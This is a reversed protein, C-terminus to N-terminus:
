RGRVLWVIADVSHPGEVAQGGHVSAPGHRWKLDRDDVRDLAQLSKPAGPVLEDRVNVM